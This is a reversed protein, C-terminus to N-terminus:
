SSGATGDDTKGPLNVMALVRRAFAEDGENPQRAFSPVLTKAADCIYGECHKSYHGGDAGVILVHALLQPAYRQCLWRQCWRGLLYLALGLIACGIVVPWRPLTLPPPPDLALYDLSQICFGAILLRVGIWADAKQELVGKVYVLNPPGGFGVQSERAAERLPKNAIGRALFYAGIIDFVLGAVFLIKDLTM